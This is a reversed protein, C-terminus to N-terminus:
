RYVDDEDDEDITRQVRGWLLETPFAYLSRLEEHPVTSSWENPHQNDPDGIKRIPKARRTFM